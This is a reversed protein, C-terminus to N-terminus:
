GLTVVRIQDDCSWISGMPLVPDRFAGSPGARASARSGSGGSLAGSNWDDGRASGSCPRKWGPSCRRGGRGRWSGGGGGQKWSIGRFGAPGRGSGGPAGAVPGAEGLGDWGGALGPDGSGPEGTGGAAAGGAGSHDSLERVWFSAGSSRGSSTKCRGRLIGGSRRWSRGCTGPRRTRRIWGCPRTWIPRCGSWVGGEEVLGDGPQLNYYTDPDEKRRLSETFDRIAAELLGSEM